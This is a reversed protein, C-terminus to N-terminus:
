AGAAVGDRESGGALAALREFTPRLAPYLGQYAGYYADYLAAREPDPAVRGAERLTQDCAAAVDPYVGAGTGALLAAGFAPGEANELVAVQRGFVDALIQRWLASRAGGGSARVDAVAIGAADLLTLCDRLSYSVGELVARLLDARTHRATLGIWGGRAEPDLHPAREGMLYPLFLLGECGPAAAAAEAVLREYAADGDAGGAGGGALQDRVWRLSLGAAQTVGMVHWMGPVSHCFAQLADPAETVGQTAAFVVGSTGVTCSVLGPRVIGNGVGGAAQDGGGAVIPLGPPLGTAGAGAASVRAVVEPGEHVTPLWARPVELAALLDDSWRRAPVDLLLTGSADAVDTAFEGSLQFRLYDKPLLIRRVRAYAEPEHERVWLVKPATFGTLAPNRAIAKLRDLGVRRHIEACQAETRQDCWLLAPRIPADAEDLLVLGHMQGTLGLAVLDGGRGGARRLAEPIASQAARWWDLPHQEAWQPRPTLLPYGATAAGLVQGSAADVVIARLGSTGVDIGMLTPM